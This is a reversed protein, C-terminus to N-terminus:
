YDSMQPSFFHCHCLSDPHQALRRVKDAADQPDLIWHSTRQVPYTSARMCATPGATGGRSFAKVVGGKHKETYKVWAPMSPIVTHLGQVSLMLNNSDSMKTYWTWTYHLILYKTTSPNVLCYKHLQM